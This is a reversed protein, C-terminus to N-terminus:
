GLFELTGVKKASHELEIGAAAAPTRMTPRSSYLEHM